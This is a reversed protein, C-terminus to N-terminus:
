WLGWPSLATTEADCAGGAIFAISLSNFAFHAGISSLINGSRSYSLAFLMGVGAIPIFSKYLLHASSFILGSLIIGLAIGFVRGLGPFVFGRFFLEECIPAFMIVTFAALALLAPDERVSDPIQEACEAQLFDLDFAILVANYAASVALSGFLAIAAWGLTSWRPRRVGLQEWGGGYRRITLGVAVAAIAVQVVAGMVFATIYLQKSETGFALAVPVVAMQGVFFLGIFWGAGVFVDRLTWPVTRPPTFEGAPPSAYPSGAAIEM